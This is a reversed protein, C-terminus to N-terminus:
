SAVKLGTKVFSFVLAGPIGDCLYLGVLVALRCGRGQSPSVDLGPNGLFLLTWRIKLQFSPFFLTVLYKKAMQISSKIWPNKVKKGLEAYDCV